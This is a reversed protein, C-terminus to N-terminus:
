IADVEAAVTQVHLGDVFPAISAATCRVSTHGSWTALGVKRQSQENLTVHHAGDDTAAAVCDPLDGLLAMSTYVDVALVIHSRDFLGDCDITIGFVTGVGASANQLDHLQFHSVDVFPVSTKLPM